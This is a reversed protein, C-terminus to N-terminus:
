QIYGVMRVGDAMLGLVFACSLLVFSFVVFLAPKDKQYFKSSSSEADVFAIFAWVVLVLFIFAVALVTFKAATCIM